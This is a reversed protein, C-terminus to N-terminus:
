GKLRNRARLVMYLIWMLRSNFLFLVIQEKKSLRIKSREKKYIEYASQFASDEWIANWDDKPIRAAFQSQIVAGYASKLLHTAAKEKADEIKVKKLQNLIERNVKKYSWYYNSAYKRMMGSDMRYLYLRHSTYYIKNANLVAPISQLFDEGFNCKYFEEYNRNVDLVDKKIAKMCMSNLAYSVFMENLFKSKDVMGDEFIPDSFREKKYQDFVTANFSIIDPNYNKIIDYLIELTRAELLDDSDCFLVYEGYAERIGVRRASILGGNRKHVVRFRADEAAVSDCMLGSKDTSGDDVLIVEFEKYTQAKLSNLCEQLYREVNYVPVIVSFKM